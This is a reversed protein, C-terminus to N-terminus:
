LTVKKGDLRHERKTCRICQRVEHVQVDPNICPPEHAKWDTWFHLGVNCLVYRTFPRWVALILEM